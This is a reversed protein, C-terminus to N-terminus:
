RHGRSSGQLGTRGDGDASDASDATTPAALLRRVGLRSLLLALILGTVSVFGGLSVADRFVFAVLELVLIKSGPLVLALTFLGGVKGAATQASAFRGKAWRKAALVVELVLKLLIAVLLSVTFTEAIVSPAYEAVLNLVVVYVFVDVVHEPRLTGRPSRM